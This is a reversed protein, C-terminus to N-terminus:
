IYHIWLNPICYTAIFTHFVNRMLFMRKEIACIMKPPDLLLLLRVENMMVIRGTLRSNRFIVSSKKKLNLQHFDVLIKVFFHIETTEWDVVEGLIIMQDKDPKVIKLKLKFGIKFFTTKTGNYVDLLVYFLLQLYKRNLCNLVATAHWLVPITLSWNILYNLSAFSM